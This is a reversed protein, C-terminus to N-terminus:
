SGLELQNKILHYYHGQLQVLEIHTGQEVIEGKHLVVINDANKVTSLRHAAVVVTRGKCFEHLHQIIMKENNADLASTAEDLFIYEPNRYVVRAILIRQKQGGSIGKGDAGIKTNLGLPLDNVFQQLNAIKLANDIRDPDPHEDGMIINGAITDSFIFGDQMVIGCQNRWFRPSINGFDMDDGVRIKGSNPNYTKLLLKFLTTKGSGSTGVIATTCGQPIDLCINKLILQNGAGPYAFSVNQFHIARSVPLYECLGMDPREEEELMHIQGLREISIKADQIVQLFGAMQMVPSNMQGIIFQVAMMDGVSLRGDLVAKAALFIIVIDKTQNIFLAGVQQYQSLSLGKLNLRFLKAQVREWDWIKQTGNDNVRIEHIGNIIQLTKAQNQAKTEFRKFDLQKRKNLFVILWLFHIFSGAFFICFISVSYHLLIGSFVSLTLLSFLTNLSSGTLLAEIRKHDEIRQLLDGTLKTDFFSLPLKMLKHLFDSLVTINIRSTIHLLVWGRVLDIFFQGATLVLQGALILYIFRMNNGDIGIDIIGKTLFPFLLQIISGALIGLGLQIVLKKYYWVHQWLYKLGLSKEPAQDEQKYFLPTPELHLVVGVAKSGQYTYAWNELFEDQSYKVLGSAPDSVYVKNGSVKYVVVFHNRRWHVICPLISNDSIKDFTIKGGIARIGVSEAAKSIGLLSVGTKGIDSLKRIKEINLLKGYYKSIIM